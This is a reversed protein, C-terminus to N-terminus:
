FVTKGIFCTKQVFYVCFSEGACIGLGSAPCKKILFSSHVSGGPPQRTTRAPLTLPPLSISHNLGPFINQEMQKNGRIICYPAVIVVPCARKEAVAIIDLVSQGSFWAHGIHQDATYVLLRHQHQAYRHSVLRPSDDAYKGSAHVSVRQRVHDFIDMEALGTIGIDHILATRNDRVPIGVHYDPLVVRNFRDLVIRALLAVGCRCGM